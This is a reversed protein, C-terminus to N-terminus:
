GYGGSGTGKSLSSASYDIKKEEEKHMKKVLEKQKFEDEIKM